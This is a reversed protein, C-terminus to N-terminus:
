LRERPHVVRRCGGASSIVPQSPFSAPPPLRLRRLLCVMAEERRLRNTSSSAVMGHMRLM